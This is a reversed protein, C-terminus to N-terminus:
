PRLGPFAFAASATGILGLLTLVPWGLTIHVDYNVTFTAGAGSGGAQGVSPYWTGQEVEWVLERDDQTDAGGAAFDMGAASCFSTVPRCRNAEDGDVVGMWVDADWTLTAEANALVGSVPMEPLPDDGVGVAVGQPPIPVDEVVGEVHYGVLGGIMVLACLTTVILPLPRM